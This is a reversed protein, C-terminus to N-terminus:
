IHVLLYYFFYGIIEDLLKGSTESIILTDNRQLRTMMTAVTSKPCEKTGTSKEFFNIKFLILSLVNLKERNSRMQHSSQARVTGLGTAIYQM